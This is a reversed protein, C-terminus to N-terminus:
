EIIRWMLARRPSSALGLHGVLPEIVGGCIAVAIGNEINEAADQRRRPEHELDGTTGTFVGHMKRTGQRPEAKLWRIGIRGRDFANGCPGRVLADFVDERREQQICRGLRPRYRAGIRDKADVHDV